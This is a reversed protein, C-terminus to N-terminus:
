TQGSTLSTARDCHGAMVDAQKAPLDVGGAIGTAARYQNAAVVLALVRRHLVGGRGVHTGVGADARIGNGRTVAAFNHQPGIVGRTGVAADSCATSGLPSVAAENLRRAM